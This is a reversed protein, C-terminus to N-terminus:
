HSIGLEDLTPNDNNIAKNIDFHLMMLSESDEIREFFVVAFFPDLIESNRDLMRYPKILVLSNATVSCVQGFREEELYISNTSAQYVFSTKGWYLANNGRYWTLSDKEALFSLQAHKPTTCMVGLSGDSKIKVVTTERWGTGAILTEFDEDKVQKLNKVFGVTDGEFEFKKNMDFVDTVMSDPYKWVYEREEFFKRQKEKVEDPIDSTCATFTALLTVVIFYYKKM